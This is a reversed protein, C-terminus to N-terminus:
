QVTNKVRTAKSACKAKFRSASIFNIPMYRRLECGPGRTHLLSPHMCTKSISTRLAIVCARTRLEFMIRAHFNVTCAVHSILLRRTDICTSVTDPKQM